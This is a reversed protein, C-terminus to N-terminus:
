PVFSGCETGCAFVSSACSKDDICHYCADLKDQKEAQATADSTCRTTCGGVDYNSDFCKAYRQCV